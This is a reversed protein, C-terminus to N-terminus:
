HSCRFQFTNRRWCSPLFSAKDGSFFFLFLIFPIRVMLAPASFSLSPQSMPVMKAWIQIFNCKGGIQVISFVIKRRFIACLRISIKSHNWLLPKIMRLLPKSFTFIFFLVTQTGKLDPSSYLSVCNSPLYAILIKHIIM